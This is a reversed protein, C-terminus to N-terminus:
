DHAEYMCPVAHEDGFLVGGAMKKRGLDDSAMSALGVGAYMCCISASCLLEILESTTEM